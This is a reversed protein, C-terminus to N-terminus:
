GSVLEYAVQWCVNPWLWTLKSLWQPSIRANLISNTLIWKLFFFFFASTPFSHDFMRGFDNCTLFFGGCGGGGPPGASPTARLLDGQEDEFTISAPELTLLGCFILQRLFILKQTQYQYCKSDKVQSKCSHVYSCSVPWQGVAEFALGNECFTSLSSALVSRESTSLTWKLINLLESGCELYFLIVTM